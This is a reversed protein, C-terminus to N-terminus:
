PLFNNHKKILIHAQLSTDVELWTVPQDRLLRYARTDMGAGLIVVQICNNQYVYM